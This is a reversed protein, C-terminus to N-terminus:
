RIRFAPQVANARAEQRDMPAIADLVAFDTADRDYVDSRFTIGSKAPVATLYAVYVPVPAPLDFRQEPLHSSSKVAQGQFLWNSLRQADEVRICGSSQRRDPNQFLLKTPTDHLYIGLPNPMMFKIAGMMNDPGPLQRVRLTQHGAAVARWNIKRPDLVHPRDSWDSLIQYQQRRVYDPGEVLVHHALRDRVLDPPMNWYPNVVAFSMMGAMPPTQQNAKGVIIRMTEGPRGNEYQWLTAGAIDVLLFRSSTVPPLARARTMNLRILREYHAPGANLATLTPLDAIGTPTLGHAEQFERIARVLKGDFRSRGPSAVSLGLRRRLADVAEGRDGLHLPKTAPVHTQPLKGWRVHYRALGQRLLEFVPNTLHVSAAPDRLYEPAGVGDTSPFAPDVFALRAGPLLDHLAIQGFPPASPGSGLPQQSTSTRDPSRSPAGDKAVCAVIATSAVAVLVLNRIAGAHKLRSSRLAGTFVM